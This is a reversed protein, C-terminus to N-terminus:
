IGRWVVRGNSRKTRKEWKQHKEDSREGVWDFGIWEQLGLKKM